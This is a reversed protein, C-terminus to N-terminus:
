FIFCTCLAKAKGNAEDDNHNIKITGNVFEMNDFPDKCTNEENFKKYSEVDIIKVFDPSFAVRKNTKNVKKVKEKNSLDPLLGKNSEKKLSERREKEKAHRKYLKISNSRKLSKVPISIDNDDNNKNGTKIEDNKKQGNSFKIESNQKSDIINNNPNSNEIDNTSNINKNKSISNEM